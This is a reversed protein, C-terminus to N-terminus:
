NVTQIRAEGELVIYYFESCIEGRRYVESDQGSMSFGFYQAIKVLESDALSQLKDDFSKHRKVFDLLLSIEDSTRDTPGKLL